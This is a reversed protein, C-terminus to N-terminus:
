TLMTPFKKKIAHPGLMISHLYRKMADDEAVDVAFEGSSNWLSTRAGSEVLFKAIKLNGVASAAHLPTWGDRDRINVDARGETVLTHTLAENEELVSHHLATIDSRTIKNVDIRERFDKLIKYVATNDQCSVAEQFKFDESDSDLDSGIDYAALNDREVLDTGVSSNTNSYLATTSFAMPSKCPSDDSNGCSSNLGSLEGSYGSYSSTLSLDDESIAAQTLPEKKQNTLRIGMFERNQQSKEDTFSNRKISIINSVGKSGETSNVRELPVAGSTVENEDESLDSATCDFQFGVKEKNDSPSSNSSIFSGQLAMKLVKKVREVTAIDYPTKNDDDVKTPDAGAILLFRIASFHNNIAASHLPTCHEADVVDVNGGATVLAQLCEVNGDLACQHMATIGMPGLTNICESDFDSDKVINEIEKLKGEYCLQLILVEPTFTVTRKKREANQLGRSRRLLSPKRVPSKSSNIYERAKEGLEESGQSDTSPLPDSSNLPHTKLTSLSITSHDPSGFVDDNSSDDLSNGLVKDEMRTPSELVTPTDLHNALRHEPPPSLLFSSPKCYSLEMHTRRKSPPPSSIYRKTFKDSSDPSPSLLASPTKDSSDSSKSPKKVSVIISPSQSLPLSKTHVLEKHAPSNTTSSSSTNRTQLTPHIRIPTLDIGNMIEHYSRSKTLRDTRDVRPHRTPLTHDPSCVSSRRNISHSPTPFYRLDQASGIKSIRTSTIYSSHPRTVTSSRHPVSLNAFSKQRLVVDGMTSRRMTCNEESIQSLTELSPVRNFQQIRQKVLGEKTVRLVDEPSRDVYSEM